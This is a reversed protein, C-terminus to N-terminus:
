EMIYKPDVPIRQGARIDEKRLVTGDDVEADIKLRYEKFVSGFDTYAGDQGVSPAKFRFDQEAANTGIGNLVMSLFLDVDEVTTGKICKCKVEIVKTKNDGSIDFEGNKVYFFPMAEETMYDIVYNHMRVFNLDYAGEKLNLDPAGIYIESNTGVMKALDAASKKKCAFMSISLLCLLVITMYRKSM